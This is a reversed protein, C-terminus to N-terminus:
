LLHLSIFPGGHGTACVTHYILRIIQRQYRGSCQDLALRYRPASQSQHGERMYHAALMANRAAVYKMEDRGKLLRAIANLSAEWKQPNHSFDLGTISEAHQLQNVLPTGDIVVVKPSELLMRVGLEYDDWGTLAENWAGVRRFLATRAMYRQTAWCSHMLHTAMNNGFPLTRLARQGDHLSVPAGIADAEPNSRAADMFRHIHGPLMIDDSDFFMTWPTDAAALGTNRAYCAGPHPEQLLTVKVNDNALKPLERQLLNFSGDTSGNDVVILHFMEGDQSAISHLTPMVIDHRNYVPVVVSLNISSTAKMSTM